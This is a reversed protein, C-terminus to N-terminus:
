CRCHTALSTRSESALDHPIEQMIISEGHTGSTTSFFITNPLAESPVVATDLCIRLTPSLNVESVDRSSEIM